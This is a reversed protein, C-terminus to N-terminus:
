ETPRRAPDAGAPGQSVRALKWRLDRIGCDTTSCIDARSAAPGFSLTPREVPLSAWPVAHPLHVDLHLRNRTVAGPMAEPNNDGPCVGICAAALSDLLLVLRALSGKRLPASPRAIGSRGRVAAEGLEIPRVEGQETGFACAFFATWRKVVTISPVEPSSAPAMETASTRACASVHGRFTVSTRFQVFGASGAGVGSLARANRMLGRGLCSFGGSIQGSRDVIGLRSLPEPVAMIVAEVRYGADRFMRAPEVFDGPDRMTTEIITDVRHEILHREAAAM